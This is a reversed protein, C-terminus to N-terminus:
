RRRQREISGRERQVLASEDAAGARPLPVSPCRRVSLFLLDAQKLAELGPFHNPNDKSPAIFTTEFGLPELEARAFAPLTEETQYESEGILFLIHPKTAAFLNGCCLFLSAIAIVSFSRM